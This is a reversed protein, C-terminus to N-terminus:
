WGTQIHINEYCMSHTKKLVEIGM